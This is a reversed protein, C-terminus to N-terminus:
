GKTGKMALRRQIAQSTLERLSRIGVRSSNGAELKMLKKAIRIASKNLVINRKGIQRLAWDVARTVRLRRDYAERLIVPYFEEFKPNPITKDRMALTAMLAVSFVKRM